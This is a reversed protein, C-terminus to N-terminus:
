RQLVFFWFKNHHVHERGGYFKSHTIERMQRNLLARMHLSDLQREKLFRKPRNILVYVRM